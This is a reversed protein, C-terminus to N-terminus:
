EKEREEWEFMARMTTEAYPSAGKCSTCFLVGGGVCKNSLPIITTERECEPCKEETTLSELRKIENKIADALTPYYKEIYLAEKYNSGTIPRDKIRSENSWMIGVGAGRYCINYLVHGSRTAVRKLEGITENLEM